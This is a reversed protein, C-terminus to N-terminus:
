SSQRSNNINEPNSNNAIALKGIILKKCCDCRFPASLIDETENYDFTISDGYNIEKVSILKNGIVKCSPHCSHNTFRGFKDLIHKSPGIQITERRPVDSIEGTLTLVVEGQELRKAGSYILDKFNNEKNIVKLM